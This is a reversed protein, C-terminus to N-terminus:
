RDYAAVSEAPTISSREVLAWDAADLAPVTETFTGVPFTSPLPEIPQPTAPTVAHAALAIAAITATGIVAGLRGISSRTNRQTTNM